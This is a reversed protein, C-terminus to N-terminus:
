TRTSGEICSLYCKLAEIKNFNCIYGQGKISGVYEVAFMCNLMCICYWFRPDRNELYRSTVSIFWSLTALYRTLWQVGKVNRIPGMWTIGMIKEPNAEIDRESVIYGLLKWKPVRFTCKKPNLKISFRQLTLYRPM